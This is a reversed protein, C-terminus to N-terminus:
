FSAPPRRDPACAAGRGRGASPAASSFPEALIKAAAVREAVPAEDTKTAIHRAEPNLRELMVALKHNLARKLTPGYERMFPIMDADLLIYQRGPVVEYLNPMDRIVANLVDRRLVSVTRKRLGAFRGSALEDLRPVPVCPDPDGAGSGPRYAQAEQRVLKAMRLRRPRRSTYSGPSVHLLGFGIEMDWYFKAFRVAVFNLDLVVNRGSRLGGQRPGGCAGDLHGIWEGGALPSSGYGGIDALARLFAVKYTSTMSTNTFFGNFMRLYRVPMPPNSPRDADADAARCPPARGLAAGGAGEVAM